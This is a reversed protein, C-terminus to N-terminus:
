KSIKGNSVKYEMCVEAQEATLYPCFINTGKTLGKEIAGSEKEIRYEAERLLCIKNNYNLISFVPQEQWYCFNDM